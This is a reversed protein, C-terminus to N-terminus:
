APAEGGLAMALTVVAGVVAPVVELRDTLLRTLWLGRGGEGFEEGPAEAPIVAASFGPGRDSVRCRLVGPAREVVLVGAGGGHEVANCAVEHVALVFDGLRPESLGAKRACDGVRSRVESLDEVTFALELLPGAAGAPPRSGAAPASM